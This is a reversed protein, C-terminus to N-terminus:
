RLAGCSSFLGAPMVIKPGDSRKGDLYKEHGELLEAIEGRGGLSDHTLKRGLRALFALRQEDETRMQFFPLYSVTGFREIKKDLRTLRTLEELNLDHPFPMKKPM